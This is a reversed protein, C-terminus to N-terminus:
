GHGLRRGALLRTVLFGHAFSCGGWLRKFQVIGVGPTCVNLDGTQGLADVVQSLVKRRMRFVVRGTATKEFHDGTPALKEIVQLEGCLVAVLREKRTEAEAALRIERLLPSANCRGEKTKPRTSVHGDKPCHDSGALVIKKAAVWRAVGGDASGVLRGPAAEIGDRRDWAM